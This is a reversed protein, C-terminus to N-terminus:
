SADKRESAIRYQGSNDRVKLVFIRCLGLFAGSSITANSTM